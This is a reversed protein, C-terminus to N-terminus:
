LFLSPKYHLSQHVSSLQTSEVRIHFWASYQDTRKHNERYSFVLVLESIWVANYYVPTCPLLFPYSSVQAYLELRNANLCAQCTRSIKCCRNNYNSLIRLKCGIDWGGCDCLGGSKWRHILPSPIGKNPLSHVGGPLLVTTSNFRAKEASNCSCGDMGLCETLGKKMIDEDDQPIDTSEGPMKLVVAALETNPIFKTPAENAERQEMGFLVSERVLYQDCYDQATLDPIHSNSIKMQGIINCIYGCSKEKNGPSIWSGSKKKIESVSSFIYHQDSGGKASSALSKMRTALMNKGNDFVFRFLPFGNKITVQLLAQVMSSEVKEEQANVPRATSSNLSGKSPQVTDHFRFSNLGKSKLLPDLMRRLPSSKTRNPGNLKERYMDDPFSSSDSSVPGSKVSVYTSSLQPVSSGEKFSFSRSMRSLSFSFRRNPSTTRSKRTALEAMEEELIKLTEVDADQSIIKSESSCKGQSGLNGSSNSCASWHSADFSPEQDQAMMDIESNMEVGSPLPCSKPVESCLEGSRVKKLFDYSFSNRSAENSTGDLLEQPEEFFSNRASRPLLLVINKREGPHCQHALDVESQTKKKKTTDSEASLTKTSGLSVAYNTSKSSTVEVDSTNKQDLDKKNVGIEQPQDVRNKAGGNCVSATEKSLPSLGHSRMNSSMNGMESTIKQDLEKKKGKELIVDSYTKAVSKYTKPTDKQQDLSSKSATEIDQFHRVTQASSKAGRPLGDKHSLNISSCTSSYEKSKNASADKTVASSLASSKTNTKLSSISSTSSVDHGVLTPMRKTPRKWKELRAWDLVGVNLAKEQLNEGSDVRQLYGPLNSMYRVLEDQKTPKGKLPLGQCDALSKTRVLSSHIQEKGLEGPLNGYSSGFGNKGKSKGQNKIRPKAQPLQTKEKVLKSNQLPNSSGKSETGLGM